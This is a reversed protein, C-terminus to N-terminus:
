EAKENEEKLSLLLSLFILDLLFIFLLAFAEFFLRPLPAEALTSQIFQVFVALFGLLATFLGLLKAAALVLRLPRSVTGTFFLYLAGAPVLLNGVGLLLSLILIDGRPFFVGIFSFSLLGILVVLRVTEWGALIPYLIRKYIM